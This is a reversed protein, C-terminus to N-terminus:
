IGVPHNGALTGFLRPSVPDNPTRKKKTSSEGIGRKIISALAPKLCLSWIKFLEDYLFSVLTKPYLIPSTRVGLYTM